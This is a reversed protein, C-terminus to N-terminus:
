ALGLERAGDLGRGINKSVPLHLITIVRIAQQELSKPRLDPEVVILSSYRAANQPVDADFEVHLVRM